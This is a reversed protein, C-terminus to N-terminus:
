VEWFGEVVVVLPFIGIDVIILLNQSNYSKKLFLFKRQRKIRSRGHADGPLIGM